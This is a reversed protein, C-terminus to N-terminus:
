LPKDFIRWLPLHYRQATGERPAPCALIPLAPMPRPDLTPM